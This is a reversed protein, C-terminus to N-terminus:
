LNSAFVVVECHLFNLFGQFIDGIIQIIIFRHESHPINRPRISKSENCWIYYISFISLFGFNGFHLFIKTRGYFSSEFIRRLHNPSILTIISSICYIYLLWFYIAYNEVLFVLIVKLYKLKSRSFFSDIFFLCSNNKNM